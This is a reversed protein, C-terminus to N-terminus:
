LQGAAPRHRCQQRAGHPPLLTEVNADAAEIAGRDTIDCDLRRLRDAGFRDGLRGFVASPRADPLDLAAVRAGAVLLAEVWVPGPRGFAGTVVAVEGDLSFVRSSM